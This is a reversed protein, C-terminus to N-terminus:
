KYEAEAVWTSHPWPRPRVKVPLKFDAQSVCSKTEFCCFGGFVLISLCVSFEKRIDKRQLPACKSMAPISGCKLLGKEKGQRM